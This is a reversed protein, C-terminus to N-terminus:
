PASCMTRQAPALPAADRGTLLAPGTRRALCRRASTGDHPRRRLFPATRSTRGKRGSLCSRKKGSPAAIPDRGATSGLLVASAPRRSRSSSGRGTPCPATRAWALAGNRTSTPTTSRRWAARTGSTTIAAPATPRLSGLTRPAATAPRRPPARGHRGARM